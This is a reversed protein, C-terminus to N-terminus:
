ALRGAGGRHRGAAGPRVDASAARGLQTAAAAPDAGHVGGGARLRALATALAHGRRAPGAAYDGADRLYRAGHWTDDALYDGHRRLQSHLIFFPSVNRWEENKM